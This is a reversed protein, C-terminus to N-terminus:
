PQTATPSALFAFSPASVTSAPKRTIVYEAADQPSGALPVSIWVATPRAHCAPRQSATTFDTKHIVGQQRARQLVPGLARPEKPKPLEDLLRWVDDTSFARKTAALHQVREFALAQWIALFEPSTTIDNTM